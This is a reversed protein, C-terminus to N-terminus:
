LYLLNKILNKKILDCDDGFVWELVIFLEYIIYM